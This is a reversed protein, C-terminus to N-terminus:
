RREPSPGCSGAWRAGFLAEVFDAPGDLMRAASCTAARLEVPGDEEEDVVPIDIGAPTSAPGKAQPRTREGIRFDDLQQVAYKTGTVLWFSSAASGFPLAGGSSFFSRWACRGPTRRCSARCRRRVRKCGRRGIFGRDGAHRDIARLVRRLHDREQLADDGFKVHLGSRGRDLRVGGRARGGRQRGIREHDMQDRAREAPPLQCSNGASFQITSLRASHFWNSGAPVPRPWLLRPRHRLRDRDLQGLPDVRLVFLLGALIAAADISASKRRVATVTCPVSTRARM